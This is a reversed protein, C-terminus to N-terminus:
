QPVVEGGQHTLMTQIKVVNGDAPFFGASGDFRSYCFGPEEPDILSKMPDDLKVSLDEPSTWVVAKSRPAEVIAITNSTGDTLDIFGLKGLNEGPMGKGLPVQFRTKGDAALDEDGPITFLEPMKEALKVNHPSDWPEDLHFQDYLQQQGIFPLVHVRWSLLPKDDADRTAQPPFKQEESAALTHFALMMKRLNKTAAARRTEFSAKETAQAAFQSIGQALMEGIVKDEPSTALVIQLGDQKSNIQQISELYKEPLTGGNMALSLKAAATFQDVLEKLETAGNADVAQLTLNLSPRPAAVLQFRAWELSEPFDAIGPIVKTMRPDEALPVLVRRLGPMWLLTQMALNSDDSILEVIRPNPVNPKEDLFEAVVKSSGLVLTTEDLLRVEWRSGGPLKGSLYQQNENELLELSQIEQLRPFMKAIPVAQKLQIVGGFRPFGDAEVPGAYMVMSAVNSLKEGLGSEVTTDLRGWPVKALAESDIMSSPRCVMVLGADEPVYKKVLDQQASAASVLLLWGLMTGGLSYRIM